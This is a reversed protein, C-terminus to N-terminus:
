KENPSVETTSSTRKLQGSTQLYEVLLNIAASLTENRLTAVNSRMQKKLEGLRGMVFQKKEASTMDKQAAEKILATILDQVDPTILRQIALYLLDTASQLNLIGKLYIWLNKFFTM